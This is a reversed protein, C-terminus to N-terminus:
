KLDDEDKLSKRIEEFEEQKELLKKVCEVRVDYPLTNLFTQILAVMMNVFYYFEKASKEEDITANILYMELELEEKLMRSIFIINEYKKKFKDIDM